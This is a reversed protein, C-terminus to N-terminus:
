SCENRASQSPSVLASSLSTASAPPPVPRVRPKLGIRVTTALKLADRALKAWLGKAQHHSVQEAYRLADWVRTGRLGSQALFSRLWALYGQRTRAVAGRQAATACLSAEHQRYRDWCEHAVYVDHYLCFRALFAQDDYMGRFSEVFGGSDRAARSRLTMSTPCPLAARHTLYRILLEPAPVVRDARFGHRQVRDDCAGQGRDWSYWYESEGYVMDVDPYRRLLEVSRELRNKLWVDDSDLFAIMEGRAHVIGLNRAASAGRNEHDPHELYRVQGPAAEAHQLAIETSKDTSGDDVLLLEWSPYTQIFVSAIAEDLFREANLFNIVVSVLGPRDVM